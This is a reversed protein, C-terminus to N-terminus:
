SHTSYNAVSTLGTVDALDALLRGGAHRGVVGPGDASVPLWPRSGIGEGCTSLAKWRSRCFGVVLNM